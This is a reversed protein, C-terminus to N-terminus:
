RAQRPSVTDPETLLAPMSPRGLAAHLRQEAEELDAVVRSDEKVLSATVSDRADLTAQLAERLAPEPSRGLEGRLDDFFRSSLLRAQAYNRAAAASKVGELQGVLRCLRVRGEAQELRSKLLDREGALALRRQREPLRGWLFATAILVLGVLTLGKPVARMPELDVV